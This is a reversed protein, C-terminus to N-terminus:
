VVQSAALLLFTIGLVLLVYGGRRAREVAAATPESDVADIGERKARYEASREASWTPDRLQRAGMYVMALGALTVVVLVPLRPVDFGGSGTQLVALV